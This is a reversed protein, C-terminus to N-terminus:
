GAVSGAESYLTIKTLFSTRIDTVLDVGPRLTHRFFYEIQALHEQACDGVWDDFNIVVYAIKRADPNHADMQNKAETIDRSLKTLLKEDLSESSAGVGLTARRHLEDESINITKVECLISTGNHVAGLDPTRLNKAKARPIFRIDECGMDQLYNYARVENFTDFLPQWDRTPDRVAIRNILDVKIQKWADEPLMALNRDIEAFYKVKMPDTFKDDDARFYASASNLAISAERLELIRDFTHM